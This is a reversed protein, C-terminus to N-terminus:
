GSSAFLTQVLNKLSCAPGFRGFIVKPHVLRYPFQCWFLWVSLNLYTVFSASYQIGSIRSVPDFLPENVQVTVWLGFRHASRKCPRESFSFELLPKM